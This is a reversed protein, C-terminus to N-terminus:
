KKKSDEIIKSIIIIEFMFVLHFLLNTFFSLALGHLIIILSFFAKASLNALRLIRAFIIGLPLMVLISGMIGFDVIFSQLISSVNFSEHALDWNNKSGVLNLFYERAFSPIFTSATELPLYSPITEINYNLNNLPTSIYIYVWIIASPLWDPYDFVPAALAIIHDRGSRLDGIYGFIFIIILILSFSIIYNKITPVRICFYILLYQLALSIFMQRSMGLFPNLFTVIMLLKLKSIGLLFKTFQIICCSYFISNLIGHLGPIGFETYLIEKGVGLLGLGPAGGCYVIEVITGLAFLVWALKLRRNVITSNISECISSLNFRPLALRFNARFSELLWGIVLAISTGMVLIVTSTQLPTLLESLRIYYLFLVLIWIMSYMLAPNIFFASNVSFKTKIFYSNRLDNSM